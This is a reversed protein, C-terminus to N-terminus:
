ATKSFISNIKYNSMNDRQRYPLLKHGSGSKEPWLVIDNFRPILNNEFFDNLHQKRKPSKRTLLICLSAFFYHRILIFYRPCRLCPVFSPTHFASQESKEREVIYRVNAVDQERWKQRGATGKAKRKRKDWRLLRLRCAPGRTWLSLM